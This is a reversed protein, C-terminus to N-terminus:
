AEIKIPEVVEREEVTLDTKGKYIWEQIPQQFRPMLQGMIKGIFYAALLTGIGISGFSHIFILCVAGAVAVNLLDSTIKAKSFKMKFQESIVYTLADYPMLPLKAAFYGLLGFSIIYFSIGLFIFRGLLTEPAPLLQVLLLTADMFFGFLFVIVLQVAFERLNIRKNLIVQVVIFLVNAIVTTIGISLGATLSFAYALSSVPSVGLSAQISFSVGLSLLFLGIVYLTLRKTIIKM